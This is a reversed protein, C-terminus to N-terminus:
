QRRLGRGASSSGLTPLATSFAARGSAPPQAARRSRHRFSRASSAPTDPSPSASASSSRSITTSTHGSAGIQDGRRLEYLYVRARLYWFGAQPHRFGPNSHDANAAAATVSGATALPVQPHWSSSKMSKRVTARAVNSSMPETADSLVRARLLTTRRAPAGADEGVGRLVFDVDPCFECGVGDCVVCATISRRLPTRPGGGNTGARVLQFTTGTALRRGDVSRRDRASM